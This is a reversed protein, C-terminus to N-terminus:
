PKPPALPLVLTDVLGTLPSTDLPLPQFADLRPVVSSLSGLGPLAPAVDLTTVLLGGVVNPEVLGMPAARPLNLPGIVLPPPQALVCTSALLASAALTLKVIM